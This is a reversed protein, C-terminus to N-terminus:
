GGERLVTNFFGARLRPSPAALLTRAAQDYERGGGYAGSACAAAAKGELSRLVSCVKKFAEYDEPHDRDSM